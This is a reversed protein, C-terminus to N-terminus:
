APGARRPRCGSPPHPPTPTAFLAPKNPGTLWAVVLIVGVAVLIIALGGILFPMMQQRKKYTDFVSQPTNKGSM